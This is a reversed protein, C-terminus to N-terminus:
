GKLNKKPGFCVVCLSALQLEGVNFPMKKKKQHESM